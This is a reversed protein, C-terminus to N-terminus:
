CYQSSYLQNYSCAQERRSLRISQTVKLITNLYYLKIILSCKNAHSLLHNYRSNKHTPIDFEPYFHILNSFDSFFMDCRGNWALNVFNSANRPLSNDHRFVILKKNICLLTTIGGSLINITFGSIKM